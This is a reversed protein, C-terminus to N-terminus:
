RGVVSPIHLPAIEGCLKVQNLRRHENQRRTTRGARSSEPLRAKIKVAVLAGITATNRGDLPIYPKCCRRPSECVRNPEARLNQLALQSIVAVPASVATQRGDLPLITNAAAGSTIGGCNLRTQDGATHRHQRIVVVVAFQDQRTDGTSDPVQYKKAACLDLPNHRAASSHRATLRRNRRIVGSRRLKGGRWRYKTCQALLV